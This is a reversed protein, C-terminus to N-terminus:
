VNAIRARHHAQSFFHFKVYFTEHVRVHSVRAIVADRVNVVGGAITSANAPNPRALSRVRVIISTANQTRDTDQISNPEKSIRSTFYAEGHSKDSEDFKTNGTPRV